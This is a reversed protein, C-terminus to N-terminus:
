PFGIESTSLIEFSVEGQEVTARGSGVLSRIKRSRAESTGRIEKRAEMQGRWGCNHLPRRLDISVVREAEAGSRTLKAREYERHKWSILKAREYERYKWCKM